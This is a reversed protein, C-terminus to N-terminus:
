DALDLLRTLEAISEGSILPITRLAPSSKQSRKTSNEWKAATLRDAIVVACLHLGRMWGPERADRIELSGPDLGAAILLLRARGLIYPSSSAIGILVDRAPRQHGQYLKSLSPTRLLCHPSVLRPSLAALEPARSALAVVIAGSAGPAAPDLTVAHRIPIQRNGWGNRIEAELIAALEPEPEYLLVRQMRQTGLRATLRERVQARSYGALHAAELMQDILGDLADRSGQHDVATAAPDLAFVGSGKRSEVWGQQDLERYAASVTNAHIRYRRALDRVSPLRAGPALQGSVLAMRLQATLQDKLSAQSNRSLWLPLM